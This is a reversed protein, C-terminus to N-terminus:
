EKLVQTAQAGLRQGVRAVLKDIGCCGPWLEAAGSGVAQGFRRLEGDLDVVM